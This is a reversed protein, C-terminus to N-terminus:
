RAQQKALTELKAIVQKLRRIEDPPFQKYHAQSIDLCLYVNENSLGKIIDSGLLGLVNVKDATDSLWNDLYHQQSFIPLFCRNDEFLFLPQTPIEDSDSAKEFPMLFTTKLFQQYVKNTKQQNNTDDYAHVLSEELASM